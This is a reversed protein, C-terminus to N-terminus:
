DEKQSASKRLKWRDAATEFLFGISIMVAAIITGYLPLGFRAMFFTTACNLFTLLGGTFLLAPALVFQWPKERCVIGTAFWALLTVITLVGLSVPRLITVYPNERFVQAKKGRFGNRFTVLPTLLAFKEETLREDIWETSGLADAAINVPSLGFMKAFDDVVVECFAPPSQLLVAAAIQNLLKNEETRRSKKGFMKEVRIRVDRSLFEADPDRGANIEQEYARLADKAEISGLAPTVKSFFEERKTGTVGKIFGLRWQFTYGMRSYYPTKSAACLARVTLKAGGIAALGCGVALAIPLLDRILSIKRKCFAESVASVIFTMPLLAAFVANVHRTLIALVLLLTYGAWLRGREGKLILIANATLALQLTNSLSETGVSHAYVYFPMGILAFFVSLLWRAGTRSTICVILWGSALLLLFHQTWLLLWVGSDSLSPKGFAFPMGELWAGVALPIRSGLCFLPPWHILTLGGIKASVQLFGDSDRWLPVMRFLLWLSPIVLPVWWGARLVRGLSWQSNLGKEKDDSIVEDEM